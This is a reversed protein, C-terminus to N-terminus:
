VSGARSGVREAPSMWRRLVAALEKATYPKGLYDDMGADLCKRRDGLLTFATVAVIPTRVRESASEAARWLQVTEYGDMGPMQCDMLVVDFARQNLRDLAAGGSEAVDVEFGIMALIQAALDANLDNDDVLLIRKGRFEGDNAPPPRMSGGGHPHNLAATLSVREVPLLVRLVTGRGVTSEAEVKGRMEDVLQKVIALGLGTGGARRAPSESQFFPTFAQRLEHPEMGPGSDNVVLGLTAAGPRDDPQRSLRMELGVHGAETFKVGNAVLNNIIELLKVADVLVQPNGDAPLELDVRFDIGKVTATAEHLHAATRCIEKLDTVIPRIVVGQHALKAYDLVGNLIRLLAHGARQGKDVLERDVAPVRKGILELIQLVGNMPTRIEHSMHALFRAKVADAERASAIAAQLELAHANRRLNERALHFLERERREISHRLWACGVGVIVLHATIRRLEFASVDALNWLVVLSGVSCINAAIATAAVSLRSFGHVIVIIVILTMDISWLLMIRPEEVNRLFSIVCGVASMAVCGLVFLLVYHQRSFEAQRICVWALAGYSAGLALRLTQPGGFWGIGVRLGDLLFFALVTACGFLCGYGLHKVGPARYVDRFERELEKIDLAVGDSM